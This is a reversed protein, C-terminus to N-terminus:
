KVEGCQHRVRHRHRCSRRIYGDDRRFMQLQREHQTDIREFDALEHNAGIVQSGILGTRHHLANTSLEGKVVVLVRDLQIRRGDVRQLHATVNLETRCRWHREFRLNLRTLKRTIEREGPSLAPSLTNAYCVQSAYGTGRGM